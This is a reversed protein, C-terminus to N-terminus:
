YMIQMTIILLRKLNFYYFVINIRNWFYSGAKLYLEIKILIGMFYLKNETGWYIYIKIYIQMSIDLYKELVPQGRDREIKIPLRLRRSVLSFSMM